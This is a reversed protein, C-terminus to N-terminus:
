RQLADEASFTKKFSFAQATDGHQRLLELRQLAEVTSPVHGDEVWWLVYTALPSKDFWEARRKMIDIHHTKFMFHQLSALSEWVSLNVIMRPNDFAQVDTANGTDDKLRWIFGESADAIANIPDLNDVFDKLLPSDLDDKATAINLQALQM